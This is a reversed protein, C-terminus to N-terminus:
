SAPHIRWASDKGRSTQPMRQTRERVRSTQPIRQTRERVRSTQPIRQTRERVRSVPFIRCARDKGWLASRLLGQMQRITIRQGSVPKQWNPRPLPSGASEKYRDRTAPMLYSYAALPDRSGPPGARACAHTRRLAAPTGPGGGTSRASARATERGQPNRRHTHRAPAPEEGGEHEHVRRRRLCGSRTGKRFPGRRAGREFEM